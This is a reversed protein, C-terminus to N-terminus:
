KIHMIQIKPDLCVPCEFSINTSYTNKKLKNIKDQSEYFKKKLKNIEDYSSAGILHVGKGDCCTHGVSFNNKRLFLNLDRSSDFHIFYKQDQDEVISIRNIYGTDFNYINTNLSM